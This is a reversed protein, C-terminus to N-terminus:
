SVGGAALGPQFSYGYDSVGERIALRRLVLQGRDGISCGDAGDTVRALVRVPSDDISVVALTYPGPLGPVPTWVTVATYVEGFRSLELPQTESQRGCRLCHVRPPYSVTGCVCRAAVLGVRAQVARVHAPMSFAVDAQEGTLAPRRTAPIPPRIDERVEATGTGVDVATATGADVAILRGAAPNAILAALLGIPAAAGRAASSALESAGFRSAERAPVGALFFGPRPALSRVAPAWGLEREVRVDAYVDNAPSGVRRVRMPLSVDARGALTVPVGGDTLLTAGAMADDAVDVGIVLTGSQASALAELAAPGGGLRFEVPVQAGVELGLRIVSTALGQVTDPEATVLVVRTVQSGRGDLAARGAAVAMTTVDEDTGILRRGDEEWVPRYLGLAAVGMDTGM